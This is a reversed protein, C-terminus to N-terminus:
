VRGVEVWRTLAKCSTLMTLISALRCTISVYDALLYSLILYTPTLRLAALCAAASTGPAVVTIAYGPRGACWHSYLRPLLVPGPSGVPRLWTTRWESPWLVLSLKLPNDPTWIDCVWVCLRACVYLLCVYVGISLHKQLSPTQTVSTFLLLGIPWQVCLGVPVSWDDPLVTGLVM